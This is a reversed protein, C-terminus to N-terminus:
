QTRMLTVAVYSKPVLSNAATSSVNVTASTLPSGPSPSVLGALRINVDVGGPYSVPSIGGGSLAFQLPSPPSFLFPVVRALGWTHAGDSVWTECAATGINIVASLYLCYNVSVLWNGVAPTHVPTAFPNLTSTAGVIVTATTTVPVDTTLVTTVPTGIVTGLDPQYSVLRFATRDFALLMMGSIFQGANLATNDLNKVLVFPGGGFRLSVGGTNVIGTNTIIYLNTYYTGTTPDIATAATGTYSAGDTSSVDTSVVVKGDAYQKPVIELAASPDSVVQLRGAARAADSAFSFPAAGITLPNSAILPSWGFLACINNNIEAIRQYGLKLLETAPPVDPTFTVSM